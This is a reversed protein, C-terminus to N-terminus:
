KVKVSIQKGISSRIGDFRVAYLMYSYSNDPSIKEDFYERMEGDAEGIKVMDGGIKQRFILFKSLPKKLYYDWQLRVKKDSPIHKGTLRNVPSIRLPKFVKVDLRCTTDGSSLGEHDIAELVYQVLREEDWDADYYQLTLNNKDFSKLLVKSTDPLNRKSLSYKEVDESTSLEWGVIVASDTEFKTTFRPPEPPFIDPRILTLTDNLKASNVHNDIPIILYHIKRSRAKLSITDILETDYAGASKIVFMLNRDHGEARMINYNYLDKDAGPKWSIKVIGKKDIKGQLDTVKMPPITDIITVQLAESQTEKDRLDVASVIYFMNESNDKIKDLIYHTNTPIIQTTVKQLDQMNKTKYVHYGKVNISLSDPYQWKVAVYDKNPFSYTLNQGGVLRNQYAYVTAINSPSSEDGFPDIGRVRYYYTKQLEPVKSGYVIEEFRQANELPLFPDANVKQYTVGKDDSREINYASFVGYKSYEWKVTATSDAFDADILGKPAYQLINLTLGAVLDDKIEAIANPQNLRVVYRYIENEKVTSDTYSLNMLHATEPSFDACLMSFVHRGSLANNIVATDKETAPIPEDYLFNKVIKAYKVRQALKGWAEQSAPLLKIQIPSEPKSLSKDNRKITTRELTYGYQNGTMWLNPTLTAWRLVIMKNKHKALLQLGTTQTTIPKAIIPKVITPKVVVPKTPIAVKKQAYLNLSFLIGLCIIIYKLYKM